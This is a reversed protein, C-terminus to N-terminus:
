VVEISDNILKLRGGLDVLNFIFIFFFVKEKEMLCSIM